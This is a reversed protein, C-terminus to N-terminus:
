PTPVPKWMGLQAARAAREANGFASACAKDAVTELSSAFGQRILELNVFKKGVLVYRLLRGQTDKDANGTILTVERAYVLDRNAILSLNANLADRPADIGIYRVVFVLGNILVKQTNGDLIELVTGTQPANNPICAQDLPANVDLTATLTPTPTNSPSIIPMSTETAPAATATAEPSLFHLPAFPTTNLTPTTNPLTALLFIANATSTADRAALTQVAGTLIIEPDDGPTPFLDAALRGGAPTFTLVYIEGAVTIVIIIFVLVLLKNVLDGKWFDTFKRM